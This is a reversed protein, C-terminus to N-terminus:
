VVGIGVLGGGALIVGVFLANRALVGAIKIANRSPYHGLGELLRAYVSCPLHIAFQSGLLVLLWRTDRALHEEVGLPRTWVVALVFTAGMLLLGIVGFIALSTSVVRNIGDKDQLGDFRSVYRLVAAGIGLDGLAMYGIISSVLLWVGFSEDGLSHVLFPQVFFTVAITVFFAVGNSLANITLKRKEM